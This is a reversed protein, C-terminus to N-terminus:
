IRYEINEELKQAPPVFRRYALYLSRKNLHLRRAIEDFDMGKNLLGIICTHKLMGWHVHRDIGAKGAWKQLHRNLTKKTIPFLRYDEVRRGGKRRPHEKTRKMDFQDMYWGHWVLSSTEKSLRVLRGPMGRDQIYITNGDPEFILSSLRMSRIGSTKAATELAIRLLCEASTGAVVKLLAQVEGETLFDTKKM